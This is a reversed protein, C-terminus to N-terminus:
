GDRDLLDGGWPHHKQHVQRLSRHDLHTYIQTTSIRQHGLLEQISRLDAGGELLHTAYTHRIMHPSLNKDLGIKQGYGRLMKWIGKRSLPDGNRLNVFVYPHVKRRILIPRINKVYIELLKQAKSGMPVLRQKDGKGEVLLVNDEFYIRSIQLYVLESVRLGASYMLELITKDRYGKNNESDPADILAEIQRLTLKKPLRMRIKPGIIDNLPNKDLVGEIMLFHYFLRLTVLQRAVTRNSIRENKRELIFEMIDKSDVHKFEKKHQKLYMFYLKLDNKYALFTNETVRKEVLLFM